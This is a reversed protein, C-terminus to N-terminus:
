TQSTPSITASSPYVVIGARHVPQVLGVLELCRTTLYRNAHRQKEGSGGLEKDSSQERLGGGVQICPSQRRPNDACTHVGHMDPVFLERQAIRM